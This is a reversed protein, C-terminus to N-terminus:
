TFVQMSLETAVNSSLLTTTVERLDTEKQRPWMTAWYASTFTDFANREQL